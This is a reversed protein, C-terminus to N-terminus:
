TKVMGRANLLGIFFDFIEMIDAVLIDGDPNAIHNGDADDINTENEKNEILGFDPLCRGIIPTSELTFSPCKNQSILELLLNGSQDAM